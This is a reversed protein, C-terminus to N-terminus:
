PLKRRVVGFVTDPLVTNMCSNGVPVLIATLGCSITVLLIGRTDPRLDLKVICLKSHM